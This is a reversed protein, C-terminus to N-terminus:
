KNGEEQNSAEKEEEEKPPALISLANEFLTDYVYDTLKKEIRKGFDPESIRERIKEITGLAVKKIMMKKYEFPNYKSNNFNFGINLYYIEWYESDSKQVQFWIKNVFCFVENKNPINIGMTTQGRGKLAHLKTIFEPDNFSEVLKKYIAPFYEKVAEQNELGYLSASAGALMPDLYDNSKSM